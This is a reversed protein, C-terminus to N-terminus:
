KFSAIVVSWPISRVACRCALSQFGKRLVGGRNHTESQLGCELLGGSTRTEMVLSFVTYFIASHDPDLHYSPRPSLHPVQVLVESKGPGQLLFLGRHWWDGTRM